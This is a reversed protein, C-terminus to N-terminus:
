HFFEKANSHASFASKTDSQANKNKLETLLTKSM